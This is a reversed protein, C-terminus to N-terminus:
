DGIGVSSLRQVWAVAPNAAEGELRGDCYASQAPEEARLNLGSPELDEKPGLSDLGNDFHVADNRQLCDVQVIAGSDAEAELVHQVGRLKTAKERQRPSLVRDARLADLLRSLGMRLRSLRLRVADLTACIGECHLATWLVFVVSDLLVAM